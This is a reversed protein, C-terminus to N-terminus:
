VVTVTDTDPNYGYRQTDRTPAHHVYYVDGPVASGQVNRAVQLAAADADDADVNITRRVNTTPYAVIQVSYRAM